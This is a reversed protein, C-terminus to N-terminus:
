AFIGNLADLMAEGRHAYLELVVETDCQSHFRVGDAELERRLERFNYLEGNYTITFRGDATSMPQAGHESLDIISLRRHGLAAPPRGDRAAFCRTGEGDPGRHRLTETMAGVLAEDARGVM